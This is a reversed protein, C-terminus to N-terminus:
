SDGETAPTAAEIARMQEALVTITAVIESRARPLMRYLVFLVRAMTAAAEVPSKGHWEALFDMLLLDEPKIDTFDM